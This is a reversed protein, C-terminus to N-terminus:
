YCAVFVIMLILLMRFFGTKRILPSWILSMLSLGFTSGILLHKDAVFFVAVFGCLALSGFLCCLVWDLFLVPNHSFRNMM